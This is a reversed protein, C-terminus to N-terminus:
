VGSMLATYLDRSESIGCILLKYSKIHPILSDLSKYVASIDPTGDKNSPTGVALFILSVKDIDPGVTDTFSLRGEISNKSVLERLGPEYIPMQGEKLLEIRNSDIDIGIVEHGLESLCAATVLGVYGLGITAIKM